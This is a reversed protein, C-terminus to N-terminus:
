KQVAPYEQGDKMYIPSGARALPRQIRSIKWEPELELFTEPERVQLAFSTDNKQDGENYKVLQEMRWKELVEDKPQGNMNGFIYNRITFSTYIYERKTMPVRFVEGTSRDVSRYFHSKSVFDMEFTLKKRAAETELAILQLAAQLRADALQNQHSSHSWSEDRQERLLDANSTAQVLSKQTIQLREDLEKVLNNLGVNANHLLRNKEELDRAMRARSLNTKIMDMYAEAMSNSFAVVGPQLAFGLGEVLM